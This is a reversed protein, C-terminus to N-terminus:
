CQLPCRMSVMHLNYERDYFPYESGPVLMAINNGNLLIQDLKTVRRGEPTNESVSLYVIACLIMMLQGVSM